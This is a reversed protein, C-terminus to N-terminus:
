AIAYQPAIELLFSQIWEILKMWLRHKAKEAKEKVTNTYVTKWEVFWKYCNSITKRTPIGILAEDLIRHYHSIRGYPDDDPSFANYIGKLFCVCFQSIGEYLEVCKTQATKLTKKFYGVVESDAIRSILRKVIPRGRKSKEELVAEYPPTEDLHVEFFSRPIKVWKDDIEFGCHRFVNGIVEALKSDIKSKHRYPLTYLEKLADLLEKQLSFKVQVDNEGIVILSEGNNASEAIKYHINM